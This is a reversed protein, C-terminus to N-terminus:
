SILLKHFALIPLKSFNLLKSFNGPNCYIMVLSGANSTHRLSSLNVAVCGM